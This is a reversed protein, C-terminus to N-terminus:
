PEQGDDAAEAEMMEQHTRIVSASLWRAQIGRVPATIVGSLGDGAVDRPIFAEETTALFDPLSPLLVPVM